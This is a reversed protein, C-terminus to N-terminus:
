EKIFSFECFSDSVSFLKYGHVELKKIYVDTEKSSSSSFFHHFEILLQIINYDTKILEDIVKLEEGEIDMKLVDIHEHNNLSMMDEITICPVEVFDAEVHSGESSSHSINTEKVPKYFKLTGKSDSLAMPAFVFKPDVNQSSLWDEVGPTPDYGYVKCGYKNIVSRDFSIDKGIGISYVVSDAHLSDKQINWGGYVSGHREQQVKATTSSKPVDKFLRRYIRKLKEM